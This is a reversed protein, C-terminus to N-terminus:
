KIFILNQYTFIIIILNKQGNGGVEGIKETIQFNKYLM